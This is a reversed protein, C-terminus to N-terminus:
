PVDEDIRASDDVEDDDRAVVAALVDALLLLWEGDASIHRFQSFPIQWPSLHLYLCVRESLWWLSDSTLIMKHCIEAIRVKAVSM